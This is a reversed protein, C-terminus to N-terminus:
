ATNYPIEQVGTALQAYPYNHVTSLNMIVALPTYICCSDM